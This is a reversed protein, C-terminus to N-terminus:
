WCSFSEPTAAISIAQLHSSDQCGLDHLFLLRKYRIVYIILLTQSSVNEDTLVMELSSVNEPNVSMWTHLVKVHIRWGSKFPKLDNLNSIDIITEM